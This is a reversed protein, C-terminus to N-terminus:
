TAGHLSHPNVDGDPYLNYFLVVSGLKPKVHTDSKQKCSKLSRITKDELNQTRHARPFSTWGGKEVENLYWVFTLLRNSGGKLDREKETTKYLDPHYFDYHFTM